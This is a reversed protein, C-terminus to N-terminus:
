QYGMITATCTTTGVPGGQGSTDAITSSTATAGIHRSYCVGSSNTTKSLSQEGGTSARILGFRFGGGLTDWIEASFSMYEFNSLLIFNVGARILSTNNAAREEYGYSYCYQAGSLELGDEYSSTTRALTISRNYAKSALPTTYDFQAQIRVNIYEPVTGGNETCYCYCVSRVLCQRCTNQCTTGVGKFVKGTGQCRCAPKVSCTTGECCAGEQCAQNCEAETKYSTRGTTLFGSPLNTSQYCPM